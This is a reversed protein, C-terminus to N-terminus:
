NIEIFRCHQISLLICTAAHFVLAEYLPLWCPFNNKKKKKLAKLKNCKINMPLTLAPKVEM